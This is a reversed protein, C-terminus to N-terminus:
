VMLLIAYFFELCHFISFVIEVSFLYITKFDHHRKELGCVQVDMYEHVYMDIFFLQFSLFIEQCIKPCNKIMTKNVHIEADKLCQFHIRQVWNLKDVHNQLLISFFFHYSCKFFISYKFEFRLLIVMSLFIFVIKDM